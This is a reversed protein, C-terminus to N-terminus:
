DFLSFVYFVAVFSVFLWICKNLFDALKKEPLWIIYFIFSLIGIEKKERYEKM